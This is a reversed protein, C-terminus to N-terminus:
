SGNPAVDAAVTGSGGGKVRMSPEALSRWWPWRREIWPDLSWPSEDALSDLHYLALFVVAYIVGTGIDTAGHTYPGGFGEPVAWILLSWVAAAFYTVQRAIGFILALAILTEIVATAYAFFRPAHAFLNHWFHFWPQLWHPQGESAADIEGLFGNVFGPLWKLYADIGFLLGFAIRAVAVRHYLHLRPRFGAAELDAVPIRAEGDVSTANPFADTQLWRRIADPRVHCSRAAETM